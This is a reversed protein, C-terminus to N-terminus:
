IGDIKRLFAHEDLVPIGLETAKVLKSGAAEGALVFSTKSSVSGAPHGGNARILDEAQQRSLGPLTGTVVITQGAFAGGKGAPAAAPAGAPGPRGVSPESPHVGAEALATIAARNHEEALFRGLSAVIEPGIGSADGMTIAVIPRTDQQASMM